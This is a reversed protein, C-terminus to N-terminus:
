PFKRTDSDYILVALNSASTDMTVSGDWDGKIFLDTPTSAEFRPTRYTTILQVAFSSSLIIAIFITCCGGLITGFSEKGRYNLLVPSGFIDQSRILEACSQM